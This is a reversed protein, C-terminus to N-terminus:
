GVLDELCYVEEFGFADAVGIEAADGEQAGLNEGVVM